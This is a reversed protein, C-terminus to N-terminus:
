DLSTGSDKIVKAWKATEARIFAAFEPGVPGGAEVGHEALPQRVEPQALVAGLAQQLRAVVPSPLGKPAMLGFWTILECGPLGAEAMTPLEPLLASRRPSTVALARVKGSRIFPLASASTEFAYQIQNGVLDTMMPAGGKYPVHAVQVGTLSRFLEGSLHETSGNGASGYNAEGPHARVWAIFESASKSPVAPNVVLINPTSAVQAIPEFDREFDYPLKKYLSTAVTHAITALFLTHGDAPAKAALSAALTGGAGARNDVVVPQGLAASLPQAIRRAIIDTTGGAAFPVILTIPKAPWDQARAALPMSAGAATLVALAAAAIRRRASCPQDNM